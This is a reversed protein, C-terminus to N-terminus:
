EEEKKENLKDIVVGLYDVFEPCEISVEDVHEKMYERINDKAEEFNGGEQEVKKRLYEDFDFPIGKRKASKKAAIIEAVIKHQQSIFELGSNLIAMENENYAPGYDDSDHSHIEEIFTDVSNNRIYEELEDVKKQYEPTLENLGTKENYQYLNNEDEFFAREEKTTYKGKTYKDLLKVFLETIKSWFSDDDEEKQEQLKKNEQEM